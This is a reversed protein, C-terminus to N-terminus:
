SYRTIENIAEGRGTSKSIYRHQESCSQLARNQAEQDYDRSKKIAELALASSVAWDLWTRQSLFYLHAETDLYMYRKLETWSFNGYRFLVNEASVRYIILNRPIILTHMYERFKEDYTYIVHVFWPIYVYGSIILPYMYICVYTGQNYVNGTVYLPPHM